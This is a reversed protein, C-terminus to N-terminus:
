IAASEVRLAKAPLTLTVRLGGGERNALAIRGDHAEIIERELERKAAKADIAASDYAQRLKLRQERADIQARQYDVNMADLAAKEQALENTLEPSDVVALVQGRQVTDGAHVKLTVAGASDAYLTPSVAAVVRGDAAVDRVFSGRQVTAFSLRSASVSGSASLLRSVSPATVALVAVAAAAAGGGLVWRLRAPRREVPRDQASTDPIM